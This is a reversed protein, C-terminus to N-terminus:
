NQSQDERRQWASSSSWTALKPLTRSLERLTEREPWAVHDEDDLWFDFTEILSSHTEDSIGWASIWDTLMMLSAAEGRAALDSLDALRTRLSQYLQAYPSTPQFLRYNGIFIVERDALGSFDLSSDLAFINTSFNSFFFRERSREFLQRLARLEPLYQQVFERSNAWRGTTKAFTMYLSTGRELSMIATPEFEQWLHEDYAFLAAQGGLLPIADEAMGKLLGGDQLLNLLGKPRPLWDLFRAADDAAPGVVVSFGSPELAASSKAQLEGEIEIPHLEARSLVARLLASRTYLVGREGKMAENYLHSVEKLALRKSIGESGSRTSSLEAVQSEVTHVVAAYLTSVLEDLAPGAELDSRAVNTTPAAAGTVDAILIPSADVFGPLGETVRIGQISVGSVAVRADSGRFGSQELSADFRGQRLVEWEKYTSNWVQAVAVSTGGKVFTQVRTKLTKTPLLDLIAKLAEEASEAGVRIKPEDDRACEVICGPVLVWKRMLGLIDQELDSSKRLKLEIETGHNGIRRYYESTSDFQKILYRGHVSKLVLERGTVENGSVTAVRVEDAIMFASLVGIGFRSISTFNPHEEKFEKTQYSSSGVKLFHAEITPQSM